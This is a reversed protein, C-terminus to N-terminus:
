LKIIENIRKKIKNRIKIDVDEDLKQKLKLFEPKSFVYHGCINITKLKNKNPDFKKDVWKEWKKSDRCIIFYDDILSPDTKKMESLIVATEIQGFEPAINISNLGLEFKKKLLVNSLYDGNHEKSILNYRKCVQLM